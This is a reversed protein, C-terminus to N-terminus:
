SNYVFTFENFNVTWSFIHQVIDIWWQCPVHFWKSVGSECIILNCTFFALPICSFLSHMIINLIRNCWHCLSLRTEVNGCLLEFISKEHIGFKRSLQLAYMTLTMIEDRLHRNFTRGCNGSGCLLLLSWLINWNVAVIINVQWICWMLNQIFISNFYAIVIYFFFYFYNLVNSRFASIPSLIQIAYFSHIWIIINFGCISTHKSNQISSALYSTHHQWIIWLKMETAIAVCDCFTRM